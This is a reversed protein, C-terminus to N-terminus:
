KSILYLGVAQLAKGRIKGCVNNAKIYAKAEAATKFKQDIKQCKKNYIMKGMKAMKAQRMNKAETDSKFDKKAIALAEDFSMVKGGFKKAFDQAAEKTGFAYKSVKKAMTAPKSSGVVYYAKNADIFKLTSNDVVKIDEVKAGDNMAEVLCYMSCFQQMKGDVKAAHNTRYFMPLTMGCKPCFMKEKGDQLIEAKALPVARYNKPMKLGSGNNDMKAFAMGSLFVIALFVKLFKM